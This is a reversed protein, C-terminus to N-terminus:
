YNVQLSLIWTKISPNIFYDLGQGTTPGTLNVEPDQGKYKTWLALNRGVVSIQLSEFGLSHLPILYSLSLERLRVYSADEVFQESPGGTLSSGPGFRFWTEDIIVPGGGFDKVYGRFNYTGDSNKVYSNGYTGAAVISAVTQGNWNVLTQAQQASIKTWWNQDGFRGFFDLAGETGDWVQGGHKIDFLVSFTLREYRFTTGIGARWKPNPDGIIADTNGIQPFGNADLILKGSTVPLGNATNASDGTRMWHTGFIVGVPQNLVAASFPDTFGNLIVYQTGAPMSTVKNKNTSWNLLTSWSFEGIRLWEVNLQVETGVNTLNVANKYIYGFGTSQPVTIPVIAGTTKDSYESVSLTARDGFLRLDLGGELETTKEPAIGANGMLNLGQDPYISAGGGYYQPNLGSGWGNTVAQNGIFYTNSSYLPPPVGAEGYALRLKGFSLIDNGEFLPLQTFQWAASVSPYFYLGASEPGYTSSTEDRGSLSVFLENYMSLDLQGYMAADRQMTWGQYPPLPTSANGLSPPGTPILLSQVINTISNYQQHDLHIGLMLNGSFDSSFDHKARGQLDTNIQYQSFVNDSYQGAYFNPAQPSQPATWDFYNLFSTNRDGLYDVGARYTFDLWDMPDYSLQLNGIVRNDLFTTPDEYVSFLPNDYVGSAYPSGNGDRFGRQSNATVIGTAPDVYNVIYPQNNFDPPCRYAGLMLAALNSGQQTRDIASNVYTADLRLTVNESFTRSVSGKISTRSFDSNALVIGTQGLRDVDLYFTGAQDGGSFTVGYETSIPKHFLETGHDYVTKSNKQIIQSTPVSPIALSDPKGSRQSIRDGWSYRNNWIYNGNDGQGFDAQLPEERLLEDMQTNERVSINIKKSPNFVGSKTTIVIVGNAGRSGWIAAASPGSYVEVSQIDEPNIQDLTSYGSVGANTYNANFTVQNYISADIIPEGDLIILPQNDGQLTRAGRLVMRTGSGPDGNSEYTNLGPAQAALSTAIDTAGSLTLSKGAVSSVATGMQERPTQLGIANVVVPNTTYGVPSLQFDHTATEGEKVQISVTGSQYGVFRATLQYSGAPVGEITYDGTANTAAGLATKELIVTAGPLVDGTQSDTIKGKITGTQALSVGATFSLLCLVLLSALPLNKKM